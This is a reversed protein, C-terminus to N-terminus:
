FSFGLIMRTMTKNLGTVESVREILDNNDEIIEKYLDFGITKIRRDVCNIKLVVHFGNRGKLKVTQFNSNGEYYDNVAKDIATSLELCNEEKMKKTTLFDHIEYKTNTSLTSGNVHSLMVEYKSSLNSHDLSNM